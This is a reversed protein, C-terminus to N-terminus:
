RWEKLNIIKEERRGGRKENVKMTERENIEKNRVHNACGRSSARVCVRVYM